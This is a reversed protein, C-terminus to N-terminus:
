SKSDRDSVNRNLLTYSSATKLQYSSCFEVQRPRRNHAVQKMIDFNCVNELLVEIRLDNCCNKPYWNNSWNESKLDHFNKAFISKFNCNWRKVNMFVLPVLRNTSLNVVVFDFENAHFFGIVAVLFSTSGM